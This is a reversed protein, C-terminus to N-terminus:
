VSAVAPLADLGRTLDTLLDDIHEIGVSLRLLGDAIGAAQRAAPSMAAHTMTAPHAVLSEVGGLSEALNFCHLAAVFHEVAEFGGVLEFSLMGGFGSQQTCAITHGPHSSLGPWYVAAVAPHGDLFAAVARANAEHQAVRVGLTRLGRMTLWADHPSGTVGLCNAWWGLTELVEPDR